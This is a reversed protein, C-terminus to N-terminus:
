IVGIFNHTSEDRVSGALKVVVAKLEVPGVLSPGASRTQAFDLIGM